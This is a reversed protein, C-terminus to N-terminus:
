ERRSWEERLARYDTRRNDQVSDPAQASVREESLALLKAEFAMLFGNLLYILAIGGLFLLWVAYGATAPLQSIAVVALLAVLVTLIAFLPLVVLFRALLPGMGYVDPAREVLCARPITFFGILGFPMLGVIVAVWVGVAGLPGSTETDQLAGLLGGPDGLGEWGLALSILGFAVVLGLFQVIVVIWFCAWFADTFRPQRAIPRLGTLSCAYRAAQVYIMATLAISLVLSFLGALIGGLPVFALPIGIVFSFAMGIGMAILAVPVTLVAILPGLTLGTLLSRVFTGFM